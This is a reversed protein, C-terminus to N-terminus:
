ASFMSRVALAFGKPDNKALLTKAAEKRADNTAKEGFVVYRERQQASALATLSVCEGRKLQVSM